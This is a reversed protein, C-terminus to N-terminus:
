IRLNKFNKLTRSWYPIKPKTPALHLGIYAEKVDGDGNKFKVKDIDLKHRGGTNIDKFPLDEDEPDYVYTGHYKIPQKDNDNKKEYEYVDYRLKGIMDEKLVYYGDDLLKGKGGLYKKHAQMNRSTIRKDEQDVLVVEGRTNDEEGRQEANWLHGFTEVPCKVSVTLTGGTTIDEDPEFHVTDDESSQEILRQMVKIRDGVFLVRLEKWPSNRKSPFSQGHIEIHVHYDKFLKKIKPIITDFGENTYTMCQPEVVDSTPEIKLVGFEDGKVKPPFSCRFKFSYSINKSHEHIVRLIDTGNPTPPEPNVSVLEFSM